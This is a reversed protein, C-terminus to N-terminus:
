HDHPTAVRPGCRLVRLARRSRLADDRGRAGNRQFADFSRHPRRRRKLLRPEIHIPQGVVHNTAHLPAHADLALAASQSPMMLLGWSLFAVIVTRSPASLSLTM